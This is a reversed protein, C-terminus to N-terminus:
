ILIHFTDLKKCFRQECVSCQAMKICYCDDSCLLIVIMVSPFVTVKLACLAKELGHGILITDANIFSMLTEQVERLSTNNGKLDEESVGSFRLQCFLLHHFCWPTM